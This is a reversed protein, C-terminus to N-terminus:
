VGKSADREKLADRDRVWGASVLQLYVKGGIVTHGAIRFVDYGTRFRGHVAHVGTGITREEMRWSPYLAYQIDTEVDEVAAQSVDM